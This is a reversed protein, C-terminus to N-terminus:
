ILPEVLDLLANLKFIFKLEYFPHKLEATPHAEWVGTTGMLVIRWLIRRDLGVSSM